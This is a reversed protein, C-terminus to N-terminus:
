KRCVTEIHGLYYRISKPIYLRLRKDLKQGRKKEFKELIAREPTGDQRLRRYYAAREIDTEKTSLTNSELAVTKAVDVPVNQLIKSPIRDFRKGQAVAGANSLRRFAELRSHGSLLFLRGDMSAWLIIPDLNEWLFRSNAVDQVINQVSRESYEKDRGQFLKTDIQIQGIPIDRINLLGSYGDSLQVPTGSRKGGHRVCGRASDSTSFTGDNCEYLAPIQAYITGIGAMKGGGVDQWFLSGADYLPVPTKEFPGGPGWLVNVANQISGYLSIASNAVAKTYELWAAYNNGLNGTPQPIYVIKPKQTMKLVAFAVLGIGLLKKTEKDM